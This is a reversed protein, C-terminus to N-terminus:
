LDPTGDLILRFWGHALRAIGSSRTTNRSDRASALLIVDLLLDPKM